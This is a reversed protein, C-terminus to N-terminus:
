TGSDKEKKRKRYRRSAAAGHKKAWKADSIRKRDPNELGWARASAKKRERLEPDDRYRKREAAARVQNSLLSKELLPLSEGTSATFEKVLLALARNKMRKPKRRGPRKEQGM